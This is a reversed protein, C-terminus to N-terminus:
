HTFIGILQLAKWYDHVLRPSYGLLGAYYKIEVSDRRSLYAERNLNLHKRHEPDRGIWESWNLGEVRRNVLLLFLVLQKLTNIRIGRCLDDAWDVFEPNLCTSM